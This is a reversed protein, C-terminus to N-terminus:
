DNNFHNASTQTFQNPPPLLAWCPWVEDGVCVYLGSWLLVAVEVVWGGCWWVVGWSHDEFPTLWLLHAPSPSSFPVQPQGGASLRRGGKGLFGWGSAKISLRKPSSPHAARPGLAWPDRRRVWLVDISFLNAAVRWIEWEPAGVQSFLAWLDYVCVHAAVM